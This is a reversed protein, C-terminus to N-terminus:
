SPAAQAGAERGPRLALPGRLDPHRVPERVAAGHRPAAGRQLLAGGPLHRLDAPLAQPPRPAIEGGALLLASNFLAGHDDEEVCGVVVAMEPAARRSSRRRDAVPSPQIAVRPTLHLLRYGTLSLEPFLLLEVGDRRASEIWDLHHALNADLDGLRSDIQALGIRIRSRREAPHAVGATEGHASREGRKHGAPMDLGSAVMAGFHTAAAMTVGSRNSPRSESRQQQHERRERRARGPRLSRCRRGGFLRDDDVPDEGGHVAIRDQLGVELAQEPEADHLPPLPLAVAVEM